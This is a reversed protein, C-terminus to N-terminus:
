SNLSKEFTPRDLYARGVNAWALSRGDFRPALRGRLYFGLLDQARELELDSDDEPDFGNNHIIDEAVALIEERKITAKVTAIVEATTAKITPNRADLNKRM